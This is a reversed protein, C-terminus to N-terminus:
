VRRESVRIELARLRQRLDGDPCIQQLPCQRLRLRRAGASGTHGSRLRSHYGSRGGAPLCVSWDKDDERMERTPVILGWHACLSGTQHIKAGKVVIGDKNRDVVRLYVDPDKQQSPRLSRDGKVDTVGSFVVYDNKQMEGVFTHFRETYNTKYKQDCNYAEIGVANMADMGTCRMFCTGINQSLFKLMEIKALLDEKSEYFKIFRSSDANILKSYAVLHERGVPDQALDFTKAVRAVMHSILPHEHPKEVKEGLIYATPHFKKLSELYQQGNNTAM